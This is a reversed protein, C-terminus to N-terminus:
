EGPDYERAPYLDETSIANTLDNETIFRIVKNMSDNLLSSAYGSANVHDVCIAYHHKQYSVGALLYIHNEASSGTQATGSKAIIFDNKGANELTLGYEQANETLMSILRKKEKDGIVKNKNEREGNYGISKTVSIEDDNKSYMVMYPRLMVNKNNMIGAMCATLFLPSVTTKGQGYATEAIDLKNKIEYAGYVGAPAFDNSYFDLSIEENFHFRDFIESLKASGLKLGAWAFFTNLSEKLALALDLPNKPEYIREVIDKDLEDFHIGWYSGSSDYGKSTYIHNSWLEDEPDKANEMLAIATLIKIVSGPADDRSLGQIYYFKASDQWSNVSYKLLWHYYDLTVLSRNVFFDEMTQEQPSYTDTKSYENPISGWLEDMNNVNMDTSESTRGALALIAGTDSDIVTISGVKGKLLSFCYNQFEANVTLYIDGGVHDADKTHGDNFLIEAQKYRLGSLGYSCNFGVIPGFSATYKDAVKLTRDTENEASTIAVGIRDYITGEANTRIAENLLADATTAGPTKTKNKIPQYFSMFLTSAFVLTALTLSVAIKAVYGKREKEPTITNKKM